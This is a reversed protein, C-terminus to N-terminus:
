KLKTNSIVNFVPISQKKAEKRAEMEAPLEFLQFSDHTFETITHGRDNSLGLVVRRAFPKKAKVPKEPVVVEPANGSARAIELRLSAEWDKLEKTM